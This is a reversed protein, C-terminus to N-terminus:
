LMASELAQETFAKTVPNLLRWKAYTKRGVTIDKIHKPMKNTEEVRKNRQTVGKKPTTKQKESIKSDCVCLSLCCYHCDDRNSKNYTFM